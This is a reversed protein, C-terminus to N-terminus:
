ILDDLNLTVQKTLTFTLTKWNSKVVVLEWFREVLVLELKITAEVEVEHINSGPCTYWIGQSIIPLNAIAIDPLKYLPDGTLQGTVSMDVLDAPQTYKGGLSASLYYKHVLVNNNTINVIRFDTLNRSFSEGISIGAGVGETPVPGFLGANANVSLSTSSTTNSSGETTPPSDQFLIVDDNLVKVNVEAGGNYWGRINPKDEHLNGATSAAVSSDLLNVHIFKSEYGKYAIPEIKASLRIDGQAFLM